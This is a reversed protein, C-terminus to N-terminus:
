WGRLLLCRRRCSLIASVAAPEASCLAHLTRLVAVLTAVGVPTSGGADAAGGALPMELSALLVSLGGAQM